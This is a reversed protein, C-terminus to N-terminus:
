YHNIPLHPPRSMHCAYAYIPYRHVMCIFHMHHCPTSHISRAWSLSPHRSTAFPTIFSQTTYFALFKKILQPVILKQRLVTSQPALRQPLSVRVTSDFACLKFNAGHNSLRLLSRISINTTTWSFSQFHLGYWSSNEMGVSTSVSSYLFLGWGVYTTFRDVNYGFLDLYCIVTFM